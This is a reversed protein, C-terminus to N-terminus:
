ARVVRGLKTLGNNYSAMNDVKQNINNTTNNNIVNPQVKSAMRAFASNINMQNLSDFFHRGLAKVVSRKVVFEGATLMAPVTDTGSQKFGRQGVTGGTSHYEPIIGGHARKVTRKTTTENINIDITKGRLSDIASQIARVKDIARSVDFGNVFSQSARRGATSFDILGVRDRIQIVKNIIQNGEGTKWGNSFNRGSQVGLTNVQTSFNTLQQIISKLTTMVTALSGMSEASGISAIDSIVSKIKFIKVSIAEADIDPIQGLLGGISILKQIAREAPALDVNKFMGTIMALPAGGIALAHLALKIKVINKSVTDPIELTAISVLHQGVLLFKKLITPIGTMDVGELLGIVGALTPSGSALEVLALKINQIKEKITDDITLKNIEQLSQGIKVINNIVGVVHKSNLKEPFNQLQATIGGEETIKTLANKIADIQTNVTSLDGATVITQLSTAISSLDTIFTKLRSINGQVGKELGSQFLDSSAMDKVKQLANKVMEIKATIDTDPFSNITEVFKKMQSVLKEYSALTKSIDKPPNKIGEIDFEKVKNMASKLSKLKTDITDGTPIELSSIKKVFNIINTLTKILTNLNAGNSGNEMMKGFNKATNIVTTIFGGKSNFKNLASAIAKLNKIKEDLSSVDPIETTSLNKAFKAIKTITAIVNGTSLKDALTGLARIWPLDLSMQDPTNTQYSGLLSKQLGLLEDIKNKISEGTPINTSQLQTVFDTITTLNSILTGTAFGNAMNAFGNDLDIFIQDIQNFIEQLNKGEGIGTMSNFESQLATLKQLSNKFDNIQPIDKVSEMFSKVNNTFNTLSVFTMKKGLAGLGNMIGTIFDVVGLAGSVLSFGTFMAELALLKGLKKSFDNLDPIDMKNLKNIEDVLLQTEKAVLVMAGTVVVMEASVALLVGGGIILAELVGPIMMIGGLATLGAICIGLVKSMEMVKKGLSKDIKTSGVIELAKSMVVLSGAVGMMSLAGTTLSSKAKPLRDLAFGIIGLTTATAGTVVAMQSLNNLAKDWSVNVSAIDKYASALLKISGAIGLMYGVNKAMNILGGFQNGMFSQPNTGGKSGKSGFGKSGLGNLVKMAKAVGYIGRSLKSFVIWGASASIIGGIILGTNKGNKNVKGLLKGLSGILYTFPKLGTMFGKLNEGFDFDKFLDNGIKKFKAVFDGAYKAIEPASDTIDNIFDVIGEYVSYLPGQDYPTGLLTTILTEQMNALSSSLNDSQKAMKQFQELNGVENIADFFDQGTVEGRSMAERLNDIGKEERFYTLMRQAAAGGMAESMANWDRAFVKGEKSMQKVQRSISNLAKSPTKSMSSLGAIGTVISQSSEIGAGELNGMLTILEGVEFKTKSGYKQIASMNDNIWQETKPNELNKMQTVFAKQNDYLEISAGAISKGLKSANRGAFSLIGMSLRDLTNTMNSLGSVDVKPSIESNNVDKIGSKIKNIATQFLSVGKTDPTISLKKNETKGSNKQLKKLATDDVTVKAKVDLKKSKKSELDSMLKDLNKDVSLNTKVNLKKVKRGDLDSLIKTLKKDVTSKVRVNLVNSKKNLANLLKELKKDIQPSIKVKLERQSM